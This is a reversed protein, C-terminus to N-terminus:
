ADIVADHRMCRRDVMSKGPGDSFIGAFWRAHLLPGHRTFYGSVSWNPVVAVMLFTELLAAGEFSTAVDEEDAVSRYRKGDFQTANTTVDEHRDCYGENVCIVRFIPIKIM